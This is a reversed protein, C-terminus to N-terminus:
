GDRRSRAELLGSRVLTELLEAIEERTAGPVRALDDATFSSSGLIRALLDRNAGELEIEMGAVKVAVSDGLDTFVHRQGAPRQFVVEDLPLPGAAGELPMQVTPQPTTGAFIDTVFREFLDPEDLKEILVQRVAGAWDRVGAPAPLAGDPAPGGLLPLNRRLVPHTRLEGALWEMFSDGKRCTVGVTIHLSPSSEAAAYHWHGRPIYLVDGKCLSIDIYPTTTEDPADEERWGDVPFETTPAFVRWRKSGEVQLVFVEHLDYHCRFGQTTAPSCYANTHVTEFLADYLCAILSKLPPWLADVARVSFSAGDRFHRIIAAVDITRGDSGKTYEQAPIVRDNRSVVTTSPVLDGSNLVANLADWNFIREFSRQPSRLHAARKTWYTALFEAPAAPATIDDFAIM